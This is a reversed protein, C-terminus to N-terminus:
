GVAVSAVGRRLKRRHRAEEKSIGQSLADVIDAKHGGPFQTIETDFEKRWPAHVPILLRGAEIVPTIAEFRVEKDGQGRPECSVLNMGKNKLSQLLSAGTQKNEIYCISAGKEFYLDRVTRMQTPFDIKDRFMDEVVYDKDKTVAITLGVTFAAKASTSSATDWTQFRYLINEEAIPRSYYKLWNKSVLNGEPNVPKQQYLALWHSHDSFSSRMRELDEAPQWEPWLAEGIDRGLPDQEKDEEDEVLAVFNIHEWKYGVTEGAEQRALIEGALDEPHWRTQILIIPAGPHLRPQLDNFFWDRTRRRYAPSWAESRGPYPDDVVALNGRRGAIATGVGAAFYSSNTNTGWNAAARNDNPIYVDPFVKRYEESHVINRVKKGFDEALGATHSASIILGTHYGVFFAPFAVSSYTSKASGPPATIILRKSEGSLLRMLADIIIKHHRAPEVGIVYRCFSHLSRSAEERLILEELLRKEERIEELTKTM